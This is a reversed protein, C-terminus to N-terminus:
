NTKRIFEFNGDSFRYKSDNSLWFQTDSNYTKYTETPTKTKLFEKFSEKNDKYVVSPQPQPTFTNTPSSTLTNTQPVNTMSDTPLVLADSFNKVDKLVIENESKIVNLTKIAESELKSKDDGTSEFSGFKTQWLFEAISAVIGPAMDALTKSESSNVISQSINKYIGEVQNLDNYKVNIRQLLIYQIIAYKDFCDSPINESSIVSHEKPLGMIKEVKTQQDKTLYNKTSGTISKQIEILKKDQEKTIPPSLKMSSKYNRLMTTTDLTRMGSMCGQVKKELSPWIGPIESILTNFFGLLLQFKFYRIILETALRTRAGNKGVEAIVKTWAPNSLLIGKSSGQLLANALNKVDKLNEFKIGSILKGAQDFKPIDNFDLKAQKNSVYPIKNEKKLFKNFNFSSKVGEWINKLINFKQSNGTLKSLIELKRSVLPLESITKYANKFANSTTLLESHTKLVAMLYSVEQHYTKAFKLMNSNINDEIQGYVESNAINGQNNVGVKPNELSLMLKKIEEVSLILNDLTKPTLTNKLNKFFPTGKEISKSLAIIEDLTLNKIGTADVLNISNFLIKRYEDKLINTINKGFKLNFSEFADDKLYKGSKILTEFSVLLESAVDKAFVEDKEGLIKILNTAFETVEKPMQIGQNIYNEIIYAFKENLNSLRTPTPLNLNDFKFNLIKSEKLTIGDILSIIKPELKRLVSSVPGIGENLIIRNENLLNNMLVSRNSINMLTSIRTIENILNEKKMIM